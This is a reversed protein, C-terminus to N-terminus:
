IKFLPTATKCIAGYTKLNNFLAHVLYHLGKTQYFHGPKTLAIFRLAANSILIIAILLPSFLLMSLLALGSLIGKIRISTKSTKSTSTQTQKQMTHKEKLQINNIYWLTIFLDIYLFVQVIPCLNRYQAVLKLSNNPVAYYGNYSTPLGIYCM